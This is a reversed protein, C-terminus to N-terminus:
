SDWIELIVYMCIGINHLFLDKAYLLQKHQLIVDESLRLLFHDVIILVSASLFPIELQKQFGVAPYLLLRCAESGIEWSWVSNLLIGM